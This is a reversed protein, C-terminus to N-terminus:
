GGLTAFHFRVSVLRDRPEIDRDGIANRRIEITDKREQLL